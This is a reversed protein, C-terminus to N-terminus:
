DTWLVSCSGFASHWDRRAQRQKIRTPVYSHSHRNGGTSPARHHAELKNCCCHTVFACWSSWSGLLNSTLYTKVPICPFICLRDDMFCVTYVGVDVDSRAQLLALVTEGHGGRAARHVPLECWRDRGNSRSLLHDPARATWKLVAETHGHQAAWHSALSGNKDKLAPNCGTDLMCEMVGWCGAAAAVHLPMMGTSNKLTANDLPDAGHLECLTLIADAANEHAAVHLALCKDNDRASVRSCGETVLWRLVESQNGAAAWHIVSRGTSDKQRLQRSNQGRLAQVDGKWAMYLASGPSPEKVDCGFQVPSLLPPLLCQQTVSNLPIQLSQSCGHHANLNCCTCKLGQEVLGTLLQECVDCNTPVTYDYM